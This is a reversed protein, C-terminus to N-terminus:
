IKDGLADANRPVGLYTEGRLRAEMIHPFAFGFTAVAILFKAWWVIKQVFSMQAYKLEAIAAAKAM